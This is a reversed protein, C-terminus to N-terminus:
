KIGVILFILIYYGEKKKWCRRWCRKQSLRLKSKIIVRFHKTLKRYKEYTKGVKWINHYNHYRM